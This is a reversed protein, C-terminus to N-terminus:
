GRRGPGPGAAPTAPPPPVPQTTSPAPLMAQLREDPAMVVEDGASLGETVEVMTTTARGLKIETPGTSLGGRVFVFHKIGRTFVCQVPVALADPVEEILIELHATDGPSLAADNDDLKIEAAHEKLNPNLWGRESDAFKTIKTLTGTFTRGPVAPVTIVCPLGETVKHRDAEHIRTSVLMQSTDPLTLVTQGPYVQEGPAVRNDQWYRREGSPGYQVVGDTPAYIECKALQEKSREFKRQRIELALRQDEVKAVAQKERSASRQRERDLEEGAQEVASQKEALNKEYDYRTLNDLERENKDLTMELKEIEDRLEDIRTRPLFGQEALPISRELEETKRKLDMQTQKIDINISAKTKEYTGDIYGRLDLEAVKLDIEAKKLKSANESKTIELAQQADEYAATIGRLEIEESDVRDKMDPSTLKLILDGKSVRTSEPVVWEITVREGQVECKIDLSNVPKLEGDEKLTVHLTVPKVRYVATDDGAGGFARRLLRDPRIVAILVVLVVFALGGIVLRRSHKSRVGIRASYGTHAVGVAAAETRSSMALYRRIGNRPDNYRM